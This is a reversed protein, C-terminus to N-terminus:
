LMHHPVFLLLKDFKKQYPEANQYKLKLADLEKQVDALKEADQKYGNITERLANISAGHGQIIRDAAIKINEAPVGYESLIERVQANTLAM